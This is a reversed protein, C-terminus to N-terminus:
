YVEIVQMANDQAFLYYTGNVLQYFEIGLSHVASVDPDLVPAGNLTATLTTAPVNANVDFYNSFVMSSLINQGPNSAEYDNSNPNFEFDSVAGFSNILRFHTAGAPANIFNGANFAQLDIVGENRDTNTSAVYPASFVSSLSIKKNFEFYKLDVKNQSLQIPRQGRTGTAKLNISKFLGTLRSALRSGAMTRLIAGVTLRLAKGMKASGGFEKNNERTRKFEPDNAIREKSPGGATRAYYVGDVVYFSIGGMNGELKIVGKQKSM